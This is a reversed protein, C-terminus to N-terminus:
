ITISVKDVIVIIYILDPLFIKFGLSTLFRMLDPVILTFGLNVTKYKRSYHIICLNKHSEIFV